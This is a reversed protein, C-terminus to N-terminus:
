VRSVPQGRARNRERGTEPPGLTTRRTLHGLALLTFVDALVPVTFPFPRPGISDPVSRIAGDERQQALLYAAGSGVAAPATHDSLTTLTILAYATSLADSAAGDQQGWGGDSNQSGLVLAQCRRAVAHGPSCPAAPHRTAALAARFVTHHYSSSWDPPFSGDAHQVASLYGLAADMTARESGGQITLANIAAATMGAESPAGALYTPFGGDQGRVAHLADIARRIAAHHTHADTLHLVEVAASTCDVDTLQARESYSWGGDPQQLSLLRRAVADLVPRDARAAHLAVGATATVWTDEDCIFPMGGDPRQHALATRIGQGVLHDHGPLLALAHLVSLHILLNGEWVTGPHQTSRLLEVDDEHVDGISGHVHALVVKVATVQVRAWLHLGRPSFAEPAPPAATSPLVGLLHLVANVLARKRPGTFDPAQALFEDVARLKVQQCSDRLAARALLRDLPYLSDRHGTLYRAVRDRAAPEARTRDLLALLLASELVRSHCPERVAGDPGVRALLHDRLRATAPALGVPLACHPWRPLGATIAPIRM